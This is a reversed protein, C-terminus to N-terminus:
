LDGLIKSKGLLRTWLEARRVSIEVVLMGQQYKPSPHETQATLVQFNLWEWGGEQLRAPKSSVGGQGRRSTGKKMNFFRNNRKKEGESAVNKLEQFISLILHSGWSHMQLQFSRSASTVNWCRQSIGARRCEKRVQVCLVNKPAATPLVQHSGPRPM